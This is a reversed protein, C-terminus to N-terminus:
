LMIINTSKRKISIMFGALLLGEKRRGYMVGTSLSKDAQSLRLKGDQFQRVRNEMRGGLRGAVM